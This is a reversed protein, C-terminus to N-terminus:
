NFSLGGKFWIGMQSSTSKLCGSDCSTNNCTSQNSGAEIELGFGIYPISEEHQLWNYTIQLFFKHSLSRTSTEQINIDSPQLLIPQFSTRQQTNPLFSLIGPAYHEIAISGYTAFQPNDIGPNRRNDPDIFNTGAPTNTGNHITAKSQTASLLGPVGAFQAPITDTSTFGYVFTDGKLAWEKNNTFPLTCDSDVSINECTRMWLNYGFDWTWEHNTYNLLISMDVQANISINVPFTTLNAVPCFVGKFQAGPATGNLNNETPSALLNVVPTDMKQALMYRSNIGNNLNFSRTQRTKFLHTVYLEFYLATSQEENWTRWIEQHATVGFGLEWHHGNGVIPEFLYIGKPRTGTPIAARLNMGLHRTCELIFNYGVQLQIDSLGTAYQVAESIKSRELPVFTSNDGLDPAECRSSYRTFSKLLDRREVAQPSFYGPDYGLINGRKIIVEQLDLNWQTQTIPAHIYFYANPHCMTLPMYWGVDLLFNQIIPNFFLRSEYDTPLGFYDALWSNSKRDEVRSGQIDVQLGGPYCNADSGFLTELISNQNLSINYYGTLAFCGYWYNPCYQHIHFENAWGSIDRASNESQSRISYYTATSNCGIFPTCIFLLSYIIKKMHLRQDIIKL